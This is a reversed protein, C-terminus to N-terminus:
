AGPAPILTGCIAANKYIHWTMGQLQPYYECIKKPLMAVTGFHQFTIPSPLIGGDNYSSVKRLNTIFSQPTPHSGAHELGFIMLDTSLYSDFIGIDPVGTFNDYKKLNQLMARTAANPTTFNYPSRVWAGDFAAATSPSSTVSNDYGTFYLQKVKLGANKVAQSLAIDSADVFSGVVGNCGAGKIQLVDATFDVGGFPVSYNAYCQSVGGVKQGATFVEHISAISSSSIGYALGAVKTAGIDKLFKAVDTYTYYEGGFTSSTAPTFTFFNSFPQTGWEPGDFGGGTVPIGQQQLYRDAGFIFASNEIIGVVGKSVLVQAATLAQTPSSQDDEVILKVKHGHIGGHANLADIRAKAAGPGDVFSSSSVGTLDGIYGVTIPSAAASASSATVIGALPTAALSLAAAIAAFGRNVRM